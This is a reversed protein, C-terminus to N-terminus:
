GSFPCDNPLSWVMPGLLRGSRASSKQASVGRLNLRDSARSCCLIMRIDQHFLM